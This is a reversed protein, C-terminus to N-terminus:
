RWGHIVGGIIVGGVAGIILIPAYAKTILAGPLSLLLAFLLGVSWGPWSPLTVCGIVLGIAFRNIFAALRAVNKDPFSMPLMMAVSVAGFILGAVLGSTINSM